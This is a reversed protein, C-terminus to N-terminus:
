FFNILNFKNSKSRLCLRLCDDNIEILDLINNLCENNLVKSNPHNALIIDLSNKLWPTIMTYLFFIIIITTFFFRYDLTFFPKALQKEFHDRLLNSNPQNVMVMRFSSKLKIGNFIFDDVVFGVKGLELKKKHYKKWFMKNKYYTKITKIWSNSTKLM